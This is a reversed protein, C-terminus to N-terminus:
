ASGGEPLVKRNHDMADNFGDPVPKFPKVPSRHSSQFQRLALVNIEGPSAFILTTEKTANEEPAKPVKQFTTAKPALTWTGLFESDTVWDQDEGNIRQRLSELNELLNDEYNAMAFLPPNTSYYLDVKAKRWALILEDLTIM